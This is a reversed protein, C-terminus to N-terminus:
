YQIIARFRATQIHTKEQQQPEDVAQLRLSYLYFDSAEANLTDTLKASALAACLAHFLARQEDEPTDYASAHLEVGVSLEWTHNRPILEQEATITLVAYPATLDETGAACRVQVTPIALHLHHQLLPLFTHTTSM